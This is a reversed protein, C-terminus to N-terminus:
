TRVQEVRKYTESIKKRGLRGDKEMRIRAIQAKYLLSSNLYREFNIITQAISEELSIERFGFQKHMIDWFEIISTSSDFVECIEPHNKSLFNYLNNAM